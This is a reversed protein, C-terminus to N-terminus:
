HWMPTTLFSYRSDRTCCHASDEHRWFTYLIVVPRWKPVVWTEGGDTKGSIIRFSLRSSLSVSGVQFLRIQLPENRTHSHSLVALRSEGAWALPRTESVKLERISSTFPTAARSCRRFVVVILHCFFCCPYVGGHCKVTSIFDSLRWSYSMLDSPARRFGTTDCADHSLSPSLVSSYTYEWVKGIGRRSKLM